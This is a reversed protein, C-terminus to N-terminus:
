NNAYSPKKDSAMESIMGFEEFPCGFISELQISLEAPLKGERREEQVNKIAKMMDFFPLGFVPETNVLWIMADEFDEAEVIFPLSMPPPSFDRGKLIHLKQWDKRVDIIDGTQKKACGLMAQGFDECRVVSESNSNHRPFLTVQDITDNPVRINVHPGYVFCEQYAKLLLDFRVKSHNVRPPEIKGARVGPEVKSFDPSVLLTFAIRFPKKM